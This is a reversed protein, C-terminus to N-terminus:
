NLHAIEQRMINITDSIFDEGEVYKMLLVTKYDQLSEVNQTEEFTKHLLQIMNTKVSVISSWTNNNLFLQQSANYEFEEQINKETLFIFEHPKLDNNFKMVLNSPKLRELFLTMRESAQLKNESNSKLSLLQIEKDKTKIYFFVFQRALILFPIAIILAFAYPLYLDFNM